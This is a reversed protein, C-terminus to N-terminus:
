KEFNKNAGDFTNPLKTKIMEPSFFISIAAIVASGGFLLPPLPGYDAGQLLM